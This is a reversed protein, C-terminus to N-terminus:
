VSAPVPPAMTLPPEFELEAEFLVAEPEVLEVLEVLLELVVEDTDDATEEDDTATAPPPAPTTDEDFDDAVEDDLAVAADAVEDLAAALTVAARM